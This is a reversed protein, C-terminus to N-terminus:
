VYVSRNITLIMIEIFFNPISSNQNNEHLLRTERVQPNVQVVMWEIISYKIIAKYLLFIIKNIYFYFSYNILLPM